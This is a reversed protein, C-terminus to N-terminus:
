KNRIVLWGALISQVLFIASAIGHLTGFENRAAENALGGARLSAMVPQLGFHSVATCLLMALIIMVTKSRSTRVKRMIGHESDDVPSAWLLLLLVAGCALSLWAEARFVSGAITGALIRDSLTAFLTPAVLYGTSWLSGAWLAAVLRRLCNLM